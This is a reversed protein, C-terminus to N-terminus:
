GFTGMELRSHGHFLIALLKKKFDIRGWLNGKLFIGVQITITSKGKKKKKKQNELDATVAYQLEWALPRTLAVAAPRHWLWLLDPDSGHRHGVGCSV